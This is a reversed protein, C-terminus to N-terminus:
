QEEIWKISEQFDMVKGNVMLGPAGKLGLDIMVQVEEPNDPNVYIEEFQINKKQLKMAVVKCRPCHTSYLVIKDM